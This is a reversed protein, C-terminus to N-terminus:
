SKVKNKTLAMFVFAVGVLVFPISLWQGMNLAMGSEFDVQNEKIFEIVFRASFVFILFLGFLLDM